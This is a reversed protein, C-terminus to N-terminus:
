RKITKGATLGSYTALLAPLVLSLTLLANIPRILAKNVANIEIFTTNCPYYFPLLIVNYQAQM